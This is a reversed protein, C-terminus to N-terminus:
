RSQYMFKAFDIMMDLPGGAMLEFALNVSKEIAADTKSFGASDDKLWFNVIFILQLWQADKYRDSIIPRKAIEENQVGENIIDQVFEVFHERFAKIYSPMFERREFRHDISFQVYSRDEKLREIFTYYFALMKERSTYEEFVGDSKVASITENLMSTWIATKIANFSGFYEYFKNEEMGLEKTFLFISTPEHGHTLVYEKYKQVLENKFDKSKTSRKKAATKTTAM